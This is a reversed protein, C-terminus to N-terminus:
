FDLSKPSGPHRVTYIVYYGQVEANFSGRKVVVVFFDPWQSSTFFNFNVLFNRCIEFIVKKTVSSAKQVQSFCWECAAIDINFKIQHKKEILVEQKTGKRKDM